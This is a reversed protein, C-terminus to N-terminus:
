NLRGIRASPVTSAQRRQGEEYEKEIRLREAEFKEMARDQHERTVHVYRMTTRIDTHGMVDKLTALDIGAEVMRTAFTHRFDYLVFKIRLKALVRDHPCNLKTIHQGPRRSSPFLWKSDSGMRRAVIQWSEVTLKLGRLGKRTKSKTVWLMRHDLDVASKELAMAEDPRLGQNIMLRGLDYLNRNETVSHQELFQFYLREEHVTLIHMRETNGEPPKKVNKVLNGRGYNAQEAWQFFLSLTDLDHRVTIPKVPATTADGNLRWLKYKEVDLQTILYVTKKGFFRKFSTASTKMRLWTNKQGNRAIKEHEIFEDMAESLSRAEIKQIRLAGERLRRRHAAELEAVLKRNHATDELGTAQFVDQGRFTFRYQLRGNRSTVSM